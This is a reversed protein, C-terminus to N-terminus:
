VVVQDGEWGLLGHHFDVRVYLDIRFHYLCDDTYYGGKHLYHWETYAPKGQGDYAVAVLPAAIRIGQLVEDGLEQVADIAFGLPGM